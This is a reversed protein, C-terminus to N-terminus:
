VFRESPDEFRRKRLDDYFEPPEPYLSAPVPIPPVGFLSSHRIALSGAFARLEIQANVPVIDSDSRTVNRIHERSWPFQEIGTGYFEIPQELCAL